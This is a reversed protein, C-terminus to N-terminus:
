LTEPLPRTQFARHVLTPLNWKVSPTMSMSCVPTFRHYKLAPVPLSQLIWTHPMQCLCKPTMYIPTMYLLLRYLFLVALRPLELISHITFQSTPFPSPVHRAWAPASAKIPERSGGDRAGRVPGTKAGCGREGADCLPCPRSPREVMTFYFAICRGSSCHRPHVAVRKVRFAFV